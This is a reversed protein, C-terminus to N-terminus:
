VFSRMTNHLPVFDVRLIFNSSVICVRLCLLQHVTNQGVCLTHTDDKGIEISIAANSWRKPCLVVRSHLIFIDWSPIWPFTRNFIASHISVYTGQARKDAAASVVSDASTPSASHAVMASSMACLLPWRRALLAARGAAPPTAAPGFLQRGDSALASTSNRTSSDGTSSSRFCTASVWTLQTWM